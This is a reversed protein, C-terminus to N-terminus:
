KTIIRTNELLLPYAYGAGLDVDLAVTGEFQAEEGLKPPDEALKLTIDHSGNGADGSGDRVHLFNTGMVQRTVKVVTGRVRVKKGALTKGQKYIGAVTYGSPGEAKASNKIPIEEAVMAAAKKAAQGEQKTPAPFAGGKDPDLGAGSSLRAFYIREFTRGLEKSSFNTMLEVGEFSVNAGEATNTKTVAAWFQEGSKPAVRLYTYNAVQIVEKVVGGLVGADEPQSDGSSPVASESASSSPEVSATSSSSPSGFAAYVAVAGCGLVLFVTLPLKSEPKKQEAKPPMQADGGRTDQVTETNSM